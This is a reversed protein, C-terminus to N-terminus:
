HPPAADPGAPHRDAARGEEEPTEVEVLNGQGDFRVALTRGDPWQAVPDAKTGTVRAGHAEVYANFATRQDLEFRVVSERIVRAIRALDAEPLHLEVPDFAAFLAGGEYPFRFYAPLGAVATGVLALTHADFDFNDLPLAEVELEGISRKKGVQRVRKVSELAKAPVGSKPNAWAWLWTNSEDARSGLVQVSYRHEGFQAMAERPFLRWEPDAGLVDVLSLQHEFGLMAFRNLLQRFGPTM